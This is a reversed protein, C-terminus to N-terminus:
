YNYYEEEALEEMDVVSSAMEYVSLESLHVFTASGGSQNNLIMIRFYPAEYNKDFAITYEKNVDSSPLNDVSEWVREWSEGDESIDLGFKTPRGRPDASNRLMYKIAGLSTKEGFNIQIWHPLPAVGSSWATHWYTGPDGDLLNEKPGEYVEQTYTDIIEATLQVQRLEDQYYTVELDRRLPRVPETALIRGVATAEGNDNVSQVEFVFEEANILGLVLLSDTFRSVKEVVKKENKQYRVELYTFSSDAPVDWRLLAGGKRGEVSLNSIDSPTEIIVDDETDCSYFVFSFMILYFINKMNKM